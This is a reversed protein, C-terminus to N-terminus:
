VEIQRIVPNSRIDKGDVTKTHNFIKIRCKKKKLFKECDEVTDFLLARSIHDYNIASATIKSVYCLIDSCMGYYSTIAFKLM